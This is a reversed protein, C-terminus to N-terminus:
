GTVSEVGCLTDGELAVPRFGPLGLQNTLTTRTTDVTPTTTLLPIGHKRLVGTASTPAALEQPNVAGVASPLLSGM